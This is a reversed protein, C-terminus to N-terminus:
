KELKLEMGIKLPINLNLSNWRIIDKISIKYDKSIKWLTDGKTVIHVYKKQKNIEDIGTGPIKIVQNIQIIHGSLGNLSMLSETSIDYEAAIESLTDGRKIQYRKIPSWSKKPLEKLKRLFSIKKGVPLLINQPSVPHTVGLKYGPNLMIMENINIEAIEAAKYINIQTGLNINNFYPKNQLIPLEIGYSIPNEVIRSLILLRPVYSETEIPLDLSWFDTPMNMSKNKIIARRVTGEGGNYAAIAHLWDGDFRKYLYSLYDIAAKTSKIIDRRGDYWSDQKLNLSKATPPIFQWLGSAHQNSYSFPNFSSEIAPLLALELPMNNAELKSIIHYIYPKSNESIKNIYKQHDQNWHKKNDLENHKFHKNLKLGKKLRIWLDDHSNKEHIFSKPSSSLNSTSLVQHKSCGSTLVFVLIIMIPIKTSMIIVPLNIKLKPQPILIFGEM